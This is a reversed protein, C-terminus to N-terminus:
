WAARVSGCRAQCSEGGNGSSPPAALSPLLHIRQYRCILATGLHVPQYGGQSSLHSAPLVGATLLLAPSRRDMGAGNIERRRQRSPQGDPRIYRCGAATSERNSLPLAGTSRCRSAIRGPRRRRWASCRSGFLHRWRKAPTLAGASIFSTFFCRYGAPPIRRAQRHHENRGPNHSCFRRGATRHGGALRVPYGPYGPLCPYNLPGLAAVRRCNYPLLRHRGSRDTLLM